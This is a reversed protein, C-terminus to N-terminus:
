SQVHELWREQANLAEEFIVTEPQDILVDPKGTPPLGHPLRLQIRAAQEQGTWIYCDPTPIFPQQPEAVGLTALVSAAATRGQAEAVGAARPLPTGAVDGIVWLKEMVTRQESDVKVMVGKDSLAKLFTPCTHPPVFLGADYSLHRGDTAVLLGDKSAPPDFQFGTELAVHGTRTLSELFDSARPGLAQLPREEPTVLVVDIAQGRAQFLAKLSIALGYPAPPCRYPLSAIAVVLRGSSLSSIAQRAQAAGHLEWVSFSQPGTPIATTDTALGPAAILADAALTTGDALHVRGMDLGIVEGKLINVGSLALAHYYTSVPRLGLLTPVIGPLFQAVGERQILTVNVLGSEVLTRATSLGGPGAGIIIVEPKNM